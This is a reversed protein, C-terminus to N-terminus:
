LYFGSDPLKGGLLAPNAESILRYMRELDTRAASARTAVLKSHPISREIIPAPMDLAPAADKAAAAPNALVNKTVDVLAAHLMDVVSRHELLFKDTVGLGAQPLVAPGGSIKAWEEQVDITRHVTKGAAGARVIAATAAPEPVLAADMRGALVLQIAEIPTGTTDVQLDKGPELRYHKLLARTIYEPTDNRFPVSIRKGKLAPISNLAADSSVVFLLGNTMVNVLRLGFGRNYLSAAVQTPLIVLPMTGSTLGARMEDPDRWAKFTSKGAIHSLAGSAVAHAMTVSPGAPPGFLALEGLPAAASRNSWVAPLAFTAALGAVVTRRSPRQKLPINWVM